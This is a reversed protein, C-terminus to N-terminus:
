DAQQEARCLKVGAIAVAFVFWFVVMVRPYTWPYDALGGVLWGCLSAAAAATITRAESAASRRVQRAANKVNWLVSGCFTILGLLGTELWVELFINHAHVYM